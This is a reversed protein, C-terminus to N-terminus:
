AQMLFYFSRRSVEVVVMSLPPEARIDAQLLPYDAPSRIHRDAGSFRVVLIGQEPTTSSKQLEGPAENKADLDM